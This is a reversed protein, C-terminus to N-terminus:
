REYKEGMEDVLLQMRNESQGESMSQGLLASINIKIIEYKKIADPVEGLGMLYSLGEVIATKGIGAKGVLMASKEPTLLILIMEKIEKERAIAPNTIYKKKTLNEGYAELVSFKKAAPALNLDLKEIKEEKM